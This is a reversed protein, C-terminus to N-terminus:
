GLIKSVAEKALAPIEKSILVTASNIESVLAEKSSKLYQQAENQAKSVLNQELSIAENKIQERTTTANQRASDLAKEYSSLKEEALSTFHSIDNVFGDTFSKRKQIHERLPKILLCHLFAITILFNALQIFITHNLDLNEM